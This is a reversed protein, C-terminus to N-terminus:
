VLTKRKLTERLTERNESLFFGSFEFSKLLNELTFSKKEFFATELLSNVVKKKKSCPIIICSTQSNGMELNGALERNTQIEKESFEWFNV